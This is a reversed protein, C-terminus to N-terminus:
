GLRYTATTSFNDTFPTTSTLTPTALTLATWSFGSLSVSAGADTRIGVSGGTGASLTTDNGCAVLTGNLFLELSSDYVEFQM